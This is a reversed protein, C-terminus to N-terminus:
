SWYNLIWTVRASGFMLNQTSVGYLKKTTIDSRLWFHSCVYLIHAVQWYLIHSFDVIFIQMRSVSSRPEIRNCLPYSFNDMVGMQWFWKDRILMTKRKFRYKSEGYDANNLSERYELSRVKVSWLYRQHRM